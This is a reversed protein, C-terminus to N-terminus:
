CLSLCTHKLGCIIVSFLFNIYILRFFLVYTKGRRPRTNERVPEYGADKLARNNKGISEVRGIASLPRTLSAPDPRLLPRPPLPPPIHLSLTTPRKNWYVGRPRFTVESEVSTKPLESDRPKTLFIPSPEMVKVRHPTVLKPSKKPGKRILKCCVLLLIMAILVALLIIVTASLAFFTTALIHPATIFSLAPILPEHYGECVQGKFEDWKGISKM